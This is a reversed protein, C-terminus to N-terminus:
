CSRIKCEKNPLNRLQEQEKENFQLFKDNYDPNDLNEQVRKLAKWSEPKFELLRSIDTNMAFDWQYYEPDFKITEAALRDMRRSEMTSSDINQVDILEQALESIDKGYGQYM